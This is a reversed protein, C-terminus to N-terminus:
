FSTVYSYIKRRIAHWLNCENAFREQFIKAYNLLLASHVPQNRHVRSRQKSEERYEIECRRVSM